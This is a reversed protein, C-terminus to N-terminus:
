SGFKRIMSYSHWINLSFSTRSPLPLLRLTTSLWHAPSKQHLIRSSRDTDRDTERRNERQALNQDTLCLALCRHLRTCAPAAASGGCTGDHAARIALRVKRPIPYGGGLRIDVVAAASDDIRICACGVAFNGVVRLPFRLRGVGGLIVHEILRVRMAQRGANGRIKSDLHSELGDVVPVGDDESPVRNTRRADNIEIAALVHRRIDPQILAIRDAVPFAIRQNDIGRALRGTPPICRARYVAICAM